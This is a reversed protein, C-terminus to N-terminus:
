LIKTQIPVLLHESEKSPENLSNSEENSQPPTLYKELESEISELAAYSSTGDSDLSIISEAICTDSM